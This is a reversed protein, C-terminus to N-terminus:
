EARERSREDRTVWIGGTIHGSRLAYSGGIETRSYGDEHSHWGGSLEKAAMMTWVVTLRNEELYRELVSWKVLLRTASNTKVSPDFAVADGDATWTGDEDGQSLGMGTVLAASPLRVVFSEKVSCDRDASSGSYSDSAVQLPIDLDSGGVETVWGSREEGSEALLDPFALSEPFERLYVESFARNEPMWRGMFEQGSAWEAFEDVRGSDVLYGQIEYWVRRHLVSYEDVGPAPPHRWEHSGELSLWAEGNDDQLEIVALPDVLDEVTALWEADDGWMSDPDYAPQGCWPPAECHVLGDALCTPDIDRLFDVWPGHYERPESEGWEPKLAFNDALMGLFECHAIWQYKKGIRETKRTDSRSWDPSADAEGFREKTWGLELCRLFVWSQEIRLDFTGDRMPRQGDASLLDEFEVTQEPTLIARLAAQLHPERLEKKEGSFDGKEDVAALLALIAEMGRSETWARYAERAPEDLGAEFLGWTDEVTLPAPEGIRRNSWPTSGSNTGIVYRGFDWAMVSHWISGYDRVYGDEDAYKDRLEEESPVREPFVSGYPPRAATAEDDGLVGARVALEVIGRAYDRALIHTTDAHAFFGSLLVRSSAELADREPKRSLAGLSACFVREVVYPDNVGDFLVLLEPIVAPHYQLLAVVSKTADDRLFRNPTVFLWSLAICTLLAAEASVHERGPARRAWTVLRDVATGEDAYQYRLWRTWVQDRVHLPWSALQRHLARANLRFDPVSAVSLLVEFLEEELRADKVIVTNIYDIAHQGLAEPKRWVLSDLFAGSMQWSKATQDPVLDPLEWEGNTREPIQAALAELLGRGAKFHAIRGLRTSPEFAEKPAAPDFHHNLLFRVILHDSFKQYSFRFVYHTIEGDRDFRPSKMLLAHSEASALADVGRGPFATEAFAQADEVPIEEAGQEGMWTAIPKILETWVYQPAEDGRGLESNIRPGVKKAYAEFIHTGGEHGRFSRPKEGSFASCFLKLFLPNTFEPGLLPVEPWQVQYYSFFAHVAAWLNQAFGPHEVAMIRGLLEQTAVAGEFGDRLSLGVGVHPHALLADELWRLGEQWVVCPTTENIADILLLSRSDSACGIEELEALMEPLSHRRDLGLRAGYDQVEGLGSFRDGFLVITALGEASREGAVHLLLHTKGSGAPGKVLLLQRNAADSSRSESLDIAEGLLDAAKNADHLLYDSVQTESGQPKKEARQSRLGWAAEMGIRAAGVIEDFDIAAQASASSASALLRSTSLTAEHVVRLAEPADDGVGYSFVAALKTSVAALADRFRKTRGFGDFVSAFDLDVDLARDFRPGAITEASRLHQEQWGEPLM